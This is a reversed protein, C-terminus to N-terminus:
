REGFFHSTVYQATDRGLQESATMAKRFHLGGYIRALTVESRIDQLREFHRTTGTVLSQIDLPIRDTGFYAELAYTQGSTICQHGSPYEPHNGLVVHNWTPDAVTDPNGDTAARQIAQVPRWFNYRHKAWWCGVNTDAASVHVMAMMRATEVVDLRRELALARIVRNYQIMPHETWFRATAIQAAKEVSPNADARGLAKVENFDAAYEPSTLAYPPGPAFRDANDFALPRVQQLKADVPQSGLPIPEFVGPGIPPQVWPVVNNYGDDARIELYADAIATGLRIGKTKMQHDPIGALAVAYASEVTAAQAPVRAVLIGRAAAAVAADISTPKPARLSVMFPEYGRDIAVVADYMAAHVLGHLVESSAPPRGVSIANQSILSWQSVANEVAPGPDPRSSRDAQAVPVLLAAIALAATLYKLMTKGKKLPSLGHEAQRSTSDM